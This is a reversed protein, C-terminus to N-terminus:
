LRVYRRRAACPYTLLRACDVDSTSRDGHPRKTSEVSRRRLTIVTEFLLNEMYKDICVFGSTMDYMGSADGLPTRFYVFCGGTRPRIWCLRRTVSIAHFLILLRASWVPNFPGFVPVIVCVCFLRAM